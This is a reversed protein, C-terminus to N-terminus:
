MCESIEQGNGRDKAAHSTWCYIKSYHSIDLDLDLHYALHIDQRRRWIDMVEVGYDRM